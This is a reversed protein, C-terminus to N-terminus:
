CLLFVYCFLFGYEAKADIDAGYELLCQVVDVFGCHAAIHLPTSQQTASITNFFSYKETKANVDAGNALLYKVKRLNGCATAFHLKTWGNKDRDNVNETTTISM